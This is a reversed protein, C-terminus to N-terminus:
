TALIPPEDTPADSLRMATQNLQTTPAPGYKAVLKATAQAQAATTAKSVARCYYHVARGVDDPVGGLPLWRRCLHCLAPEAM